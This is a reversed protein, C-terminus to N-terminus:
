QTGCEACNHRCRGACDGTAAEFNFDILGGGVASDADCFALSSNGDDVSRCFRCSLQVICLWNTRVSGGDKSGLCAGARRQPVSNYGCHGSICSSRM